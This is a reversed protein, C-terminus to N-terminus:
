NEQISRSRAAHRTPARLMVPQPAAHRTPACYSPNPRAAHRTPARLIVLFFNARQHPSFVNTRM